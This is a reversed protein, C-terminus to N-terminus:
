KWATKQFWTLSNGNRHQQRETAMDQRVKAAGHVAARQAARGKVMEQRKGLEHGIFQHHSGVMEDETARKEKQRWDKGSDAKKLSGATQMLNKSRHVHPINTQLRNNFFFFLNKITKTLHQWWVSHKNTSLFFVSINKLLGALKVTYPLNLISLWQVHLFYLM